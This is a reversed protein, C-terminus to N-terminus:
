LSFKQGQTSLTRLVALLRNLFIRSGLVCKSVFNLKGILSQLERKIAVSKNLWHSVLSKIETLRDTTVEITQAETDFLVGLFEVKTHTYVSKEPAETLGLNNM